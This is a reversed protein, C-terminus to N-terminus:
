ARDGSLRGAALVIVLRVLLVMSAAPALLRRLGRATQWEFRLASRHHALVMSLPARRRSLGEHHIVEAGEVGEIRWGRRGLAWCLAMDEAFMFYREDFGGVEEFASRRVVFFAGSVWDVGGDPRPSRYKKTFPNQPWWPACLAHAAALLPDPFVRWAPYPAGDSTVIRPGVLAVAPEDDLRAVLAKVAGPRAVTDPNAVLLYERATAAAAGRNAGRGYGLNVGPEVLTVSRGRLAPASSGPAGNEVVVVEGVGSSWLSDVCESLAQGAHFDVVVASVRDLGGRM